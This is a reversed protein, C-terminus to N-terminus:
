KDKNLFGYMAEQVRCTTCIQKGDVKSIANFAAQDGTLVVGKNCRPCIRGGM